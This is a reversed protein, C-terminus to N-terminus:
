ATIHAQLPTLAVAAQKQTLLHRTRDTHSMAEPKKKYKARLCCLIFLVRLSLADSVSDPLLSMCDHFAINEQHYEQLYQEDRQVGHEGCCLNCHQTDVFVFEILQCLIPVPTGAAQQATICKKRFEEQWHQM